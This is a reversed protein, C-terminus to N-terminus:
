IRPLATEHRKKPKLLSYKKMDLKVSGHVSYMQCVNGSKTLRNKFIIIIIFFNTFNFNTQYYVIMFFNHIPYCSNGKSIYKPPSLNYQVLNTLDYSYSFYFNSSLDNSQFMGVYRSEDPHIDRFKEQKLKM